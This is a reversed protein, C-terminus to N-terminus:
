RMPGVPGTPGDAPITWAVSTGSAGGRPRAPIAPACVLGANGEVLGACSRAREVAEISTPGGSFTRGLVALSAAALIFAATFQAERSM